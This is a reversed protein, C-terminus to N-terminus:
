MLFLIYRLHKTIIVMDYTSHDKFLLNNDHYMIMFYLNKKKKRFLIFTILCSPGCNVRVHMWTVEFLLLCNLSFQSSFFM